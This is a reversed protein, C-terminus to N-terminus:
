QEPDRYPLTRPGQSHPLWVPSPPAPDGLRSCPADTSVLCPFLSSTLLRCSALSSSGLMAEHHWCACLFNIHMAWSFCTFADTFTYNNYKNYKNNWSFLDNPALVMQIWGRIYSATDPVGITSSRTLWTRSTTRIFTYKSRPVGPPRSKPVLPIHSLPPFHSTLKRAFQTRPPRIRDCSPPNGLLYFPSCFPILLPLFFCPSHAMYTTVQNTYM